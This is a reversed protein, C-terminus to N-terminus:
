MGVTGVDIGLVAGLDGSRAHNPRLAEVAIRIALALEESRAWGATV